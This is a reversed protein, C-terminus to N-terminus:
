IFNLVNKKDINLIIEIYGDLNEKKSGDFNEHADINENKDLVVGVLWVLGSEQSGM